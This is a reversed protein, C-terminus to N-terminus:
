GLNTNKASMGEQRKEKQKRTGEMKQGQARFCVDAEAEERQGVEEFREIDDSAECCAFVVFWRRLWLRPRWIM